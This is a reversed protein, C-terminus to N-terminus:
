KAQDILDLIRAPRDIIHDAGKEELLEQSRFGWTVGVSVLGANKATDMDVESDGVYIASEKQAGLEELISFIGDPAPKRPVGEREGRAADFCGPFYDECLAVVAKDYKNSIVATRVGREKLASLLALIGDYPKTKDQWHQAYYDKFAALCIEMDKESADEPLAKRMLFEVGNGVFSRVEELRRASYGKVALGANTSNTLDELTDLLTGDMDFIVTDIM